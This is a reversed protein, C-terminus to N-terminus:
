SPDDLPRGSVPAGRGAPHPRRRARRRGIRDVAEAVVPVVGATLLWGGVVDTPWHALLAVRSVGVVAAWVAAAVVVPVKVHAPLRRWLLLVVLLAGTASQVTHGSPYSPVSVFVFGDVPRVRDVVIQALGFSARAVLVGAVLVALDRYRRSALLWVALAGAVALLFLLDGGYTLLRMTAVWEPNAVGHRRAALSVAQDTAHIVPWWTVLAGLGVFLGLATVALGLRFPPRRLRCM